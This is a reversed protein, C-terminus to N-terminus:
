CTFVLFGIIRWMKINQGNGIRWILNRKFKTWVQMIGKWANSARSVQRIKPLVGNGCNYKSRMVQVWLTENVLGWALKM